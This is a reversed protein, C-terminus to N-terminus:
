LTTGELFYSYRMDLIVSSSVPMYARLSVATVPRGTDSVRQVNIEQFPDRLDEKM